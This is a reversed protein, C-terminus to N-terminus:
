RIYKSLEYKNTLFSTVIVGFAMLIFWLVVYLLIDMDFIEISVHYSAGIIGFIIFNTIFSVIIVVSILLIFFVIKLRILQTKTAGLLFRLDFSNRTINLTLVLAFLYVVFSVLLLADSITTIGRIIPDYILSVFDVETELSYIYPDDSTIKNDVIIQNVISKDPRGDYRFISGYYDPLVLENMNPVYIVREGKEPYGENFIGSINIGFPVPLVEFYNVVTFTLEIYQIQEDEHAKPLLFSHTYEIGIADKPDNIELRNKIFSIPVVAGNFNDNYFKYPGFEHLIENNATALYRYSNPGNYINFSITSKQGYDTSVLPKDFITAYISNEDLYYKSSAVIKPTIYSTFLSLFLVFIIIFVSVILRKIVYKNELLYYKLESIM